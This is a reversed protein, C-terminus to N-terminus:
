SCWKLNERNPCFVIFHVLLYIINKVCTIFFKSHTYCQTRFIFVDQMYTSITIFVKKSINKSIGIDNKKDWVYIGNMDKDISLFFSCAETITFLPYYTIIFFNNRKIKLLFYVFCYVFSIATNRFFILIEIECLHRKSTLM